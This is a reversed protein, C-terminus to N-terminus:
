QLKLEIKLGLRIIDNGALKMYKGAPVKENNVFTGNRSNLDKIFYVSKIQQIEAHERSVLVDDIVIDCTSARGITIKSTLHITKGNFVLSRTEKSKVKVLRQGVPSETIITEDM